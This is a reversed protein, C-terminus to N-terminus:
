LILASYEVDYLPRAGRILRRETKTYSIALKLSCVYYPYWRPVKDHGRDIGHNACM